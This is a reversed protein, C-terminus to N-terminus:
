KAPMFIDPGRSGEPDEPVIGCLLYCTGYSIGSGRVLLSLIVTGIHYIREEVVQHSFQVAKSRREILNVNNVAPGVRSDENGEM